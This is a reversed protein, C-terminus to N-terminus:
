RSGLAGQGGSMLEVGTASASCDGALNGNYREKGFIMDPGMSSATGGLHSRRCHCRVGSSQEIRRRMKRYRWTRARRITIHARKLFKHLRDRLPLVGENRMGM